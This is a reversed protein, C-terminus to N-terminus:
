HFLLQLLDWLFILFREVQRPVAVGSRLPLAAPRPGFLWCCAFYLPKIEVEPKQLNEAQRRSVSTTFCGNERKMREERAECGGLLGHSVSKDVPCTSVKPLAGERTAAMLCPRSPRPRPGPDTSQRQHGLWGWKQSRQRAAQSHPAAVRATLQKIGPSLSSSCSLSTSALSSTHSGRLKSSPSSTFFLPPTEWTTTTPISSPPCPSAVLTSSSSALSFPTRPLAQWAQSQSVDARLREYVDRSPLDRTTCCVLLLRVKWTNPGSPVELWQNSWNM